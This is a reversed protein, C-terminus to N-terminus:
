LLRSEIQSFSQIQDLLKGFERLILRLIQTKWVTFSNSIETHHKEENEALNLKKLNFREIHFRHITQKSV